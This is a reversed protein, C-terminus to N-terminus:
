KKLIDSLSDVFKKDVPQVQFQVLEALGSPKQVKIEIQTGVPLQQGFTDGIFRYVDPHNNFFNKRENFLSIVKQLKINM